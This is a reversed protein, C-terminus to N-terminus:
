ISFLGHWLWEQINQKAMLCIPNPTTSDQLTISYLNTGRSGKLLDNGKLDRIYCTSKRFAVQVLRWVLFNTCNQDNGFQGKMQTKVFPLMNQAFDLATVPISFDNNVYQLPILSSKSFDKKALSNFSYIALKSIAIGKDQLQAKLDQIEFYQNEEKLIRKVSKKSLNTM